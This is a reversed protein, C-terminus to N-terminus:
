RKRHWHHSPDIPIGSEDCGKFFGGGRREGKANEKVQNDHTQCLCRLNDLVDFKTLGPAGRPRTLIHDVTHVKAGCGPVVCRFHDRKKAALKLAKWEPTQYFGTKAPM